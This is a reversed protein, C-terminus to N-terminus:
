FLAHHTKRVDQQEREYEASEAVVMLRKFSVNPANRGLYRGVQEIDLNVDSLLSYLQKAIREEDTRIKRM